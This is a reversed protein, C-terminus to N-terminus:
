RVSANLAIRNAIKGADKGRDDFEHALTRAIWSAILADGTHAPPPRWDLAENIWRQVDPAVNGAADSPVLWAGNELEVFLGRVGLTRHHKNKGTTHSLLPISMDSALTWQRLWKQAANTEVKLLGGYSRAWEIILKVLQSGEAKVYKINLLRRM